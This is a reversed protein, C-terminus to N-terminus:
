KREGVSAASPASWRAAAIISYMFPELTSSVGGRRCMAARGSPARRERMRAPVSSRVAHRDARLQRETQERVQQNQERRQRERKVRELLQVDGRSLEALVREARRQQDPSHAGGGILNPLRLLAQEEYVVRGRQIVDVLLEPEQPRHVVRQLAVIELLRARADARLDLLEPADRRDLHRM